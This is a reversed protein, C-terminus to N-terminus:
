GACAKAGLTAAIEEFAFHLQDEPLREPKQGFQMWKLKALLALLRENQALGDDRERAARDRERAAHDREM